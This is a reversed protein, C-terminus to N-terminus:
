QSALIRKRTDAEVLCWPEEEEERPQICGCRIQASPTIAQLFPHQPHVSDGRSVTPCPPLTCPAPAHRNELAKVLQPKLRLGHCEDQIM